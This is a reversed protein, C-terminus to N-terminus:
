RCSIKGEMKIPCIDEEDRWSKFTLDKFVVSIDNNITKVSISGGDAFYEGNCDSFIEIFFAVDGEKFDSSNSTNINGLYNQYQKLTYNGDTPKEGIFTIQLFPSLLIPGIMLADEFTLEIVFVDDEFDFNPNEGLFCRVNLNELSSDDIKQYDENVVLFDEQNFEEEAIEDTSSCSFTGLILLFYILYRM